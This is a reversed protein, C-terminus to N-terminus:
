ETKAKIEVDIAEVELQNLRAMANDFIRDIEALPQVQGLEAGRELVRGKKLALIRVEIKELEKKLEQNEARLKTIEDLPIQKAEELEKKYEEERKKYEDEIAVARALEQSAKSIESKADALQKKLETIENQISNLREKLTAIEKSKESLDANLEAKEKNFQQEAKDKEEKVKNIKQNLQAIEENSTQKVLKLETEAASAKLEAKEARKKENLFSTTLTKGRLAKENDPKLELAKQFEANADEYKGADLYDYGTKLHTGFEGCGVLFALMLIVGIIRLWFM